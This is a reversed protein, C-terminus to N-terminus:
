IVVKLEWKFSHTRETTLGGHLKALAAITLFRKTIVHPSKHLQIFVPM